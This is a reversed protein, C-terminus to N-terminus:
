LYEQTKGLRDSLTEITRIIETVEMMKQTQNLSALM